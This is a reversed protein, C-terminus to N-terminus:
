LHGYNQLGFESRRPTALEDFGVKSQLKLLVKTYIM